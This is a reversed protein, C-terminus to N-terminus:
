KEPHQSNRFINLLSLTTIYYYINSVCKNKFTIEEVFTNKAM